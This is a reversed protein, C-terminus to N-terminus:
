ACWSCFDWVTWSHDETILLHKFEDKTLMTFCTRPDWLVFFDVQLSPTLYIDFCEASHDAVSGLCSRIALVDVLHVQPIVLSVFYFCSSLYMCCHLYCTFITDFFWIHQTLEQRDVQEVANSMKLVSRIWVSAKAGLSVVREQGSFMQSWILSAKCFYLLDLSPVEALGRNLM